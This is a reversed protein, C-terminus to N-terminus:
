EFSPSAIPGPFVTQGTPDVRFKPTGVFGPLSKTKKKEFTNKGRPGEKKMMKM